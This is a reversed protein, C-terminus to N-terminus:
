CETDGPQQTSRRSMKNREKQIKKNQCYCAMVEQLQDLLRVWGFVFHNNYPANLILHAVQPEVAVKLDVTVTYTIM